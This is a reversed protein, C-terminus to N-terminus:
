GIVRTRHWRARFSRTAALGPAPPSLRVRWAPPETPAPRTTSCSTYETATGDARSDSAVADILDARNYSAPNQHLFSAHWRRAPFDSAVETNWVAALQVRSRGRGLVNGISPRPRMPRTPDRHPFCVASDYDASLEPLPSEQRANGSKDQRKSVVTFTATDSGM